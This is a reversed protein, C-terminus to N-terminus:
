RDDQISWGFNTAYQLAKPKTTFNSEIINELDPCNVWVIYYKCGEMYSIRVMTGVPPNELGFSQRYSPRVALRLRSKHSTKPENPSYKPLNDNKM